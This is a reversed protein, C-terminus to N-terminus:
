EVRWALGLAKLTAIQDAAVTAKADSVSQLVALWSRQADLQRLEDSLGAQTLRTQLRYSQELQVSQATLADLRARDQQLANLDNEVEHLAQLVVRRYSEFAEVQQAEALHVNAEVRGADFIPVTIQPGLAFQHAGWVDLGNRGSFQLAQFAFSGSLTVQPFFDARAAGINATAQHLTAEAQRIDPRARAMESPLSLPIPQRFAPIPQPQLESDLQGPPLVLLQAIANRYSQVSNRLPALNAEALAQAAQAASLDIDTSFGSRVRSATLSVSRRHLALVQEATQLDAQAGRLAIYNRGIETAMTGLAIRKAEESALVAADAAEIGRAIKGWFDPEWSADFGAQFLDFDRATPRSIGATAGSSGLPAVSSSGGTLSLVGKASPRERNYSSSAELTPLLKVGAQALQARSESIRALAIRVDLNEDRARAILRALTLDGFAEWWTEAGLLASTGPWSHSWTEPVPPEPPQFDPGQVCGALTLSVTAILALRRM